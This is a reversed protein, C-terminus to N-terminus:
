AGRHLRIAAEVFAIVQVSGSGYRDAAQIAALARLCGRGLEAPKRTGAILGRAVNQVLHSNIMTENEPATTRSKGMGLSYRM